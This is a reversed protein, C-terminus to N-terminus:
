CYSEGMFGAPFKIDTRIKNDVLVNRDKLILM